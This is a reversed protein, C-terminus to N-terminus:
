REARVSMALSRLLVMMKGNGVSNASTMPLSTPLSGSWGRQPRARRSRTSRPFRLRLASLLGLLRSLDAAENFDSDLLVRGQQRVVRAQQWPVALPMLQGDLITRAGAHVRDLESDDLRREDARAGAAVMTLVMALAAVRVVTM